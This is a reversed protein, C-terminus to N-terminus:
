GRARAADIQSDRRSEIRARERRYTEEAEQRASPETATKLHDQLLIELEALKADCQRRIEAIEDRVSPDLGEARPKEIGQDALRELALEYASKIENRSPADDAM